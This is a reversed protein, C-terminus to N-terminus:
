DDPVITLNRSGSEDNRRPRGERSRPDLHRPTDRDSRQSNMLLRSLQWELQSVRRELTGLMWIVAGIGALLLVVLLILGSDEVAPTGRGWRLLPARLLPARLRRRERRGTRAAASRRGPRKSPEPQGEHYTM